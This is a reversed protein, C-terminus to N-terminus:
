PLSRSPYNSLDKFHNYILHLLYSSKLVKNTRKPPIKRQPQKLRVTGWIGIGLGVIIGTLGMFLIPLYWFLLSQDPEELRAVIAEWIYMLAFGIGTLAILSGVVM